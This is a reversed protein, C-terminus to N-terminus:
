SQNRGSGRRARSSGVAVRVEDEDDFSRAGVDMVDIEDFWLQRMVERIKSRQEGRFVGDEGAENGRMRGSDSKDSSRKWPITSLDFASQKKTLGPQSMTPNIRTALRALADGTPDGFRRANILERSIREFERTVKVDYTMNVTFGIPNTTTPTTPLLSFYDPTTEM